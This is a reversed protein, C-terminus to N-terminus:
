GYNKGEKVYLIKYDVNKILRGIIYCLPEGSLRLIKGLISGKIKKDKSYCSVVETGWATALPAMLKCALKSKRMLKVYPVAWFRYGNVTYESIYKDTYFTELSYLDKSLLNQKLLETCIVTGGGPGDGGGPGTDDGGGMGGSGVAGTEGEGTAGGVGPGSSDAGFGMFGADAASQESSVTDSASVSAGAEAEEGHSLETDLSDPQGLHGTTDDSTGIFGIAPDAEL